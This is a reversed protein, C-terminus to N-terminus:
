ENKTKGLLDLKSFMVEILMFWHKGTAGVGLSILELPFPIVKLLQPALLNAMIMGTVLNWIVNRASVKEEVRYLHLASGIFGFAICSIYIHEFVADLM